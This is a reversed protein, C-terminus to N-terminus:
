KKIFLLLFGFTTAVQAIWFLFMWKILESKTESIRIDLQYIERSMYDKTIALDEKTALLQLRETFEDKIKDEIYVTLHEATDRGLKASLLDYLKAISILTM